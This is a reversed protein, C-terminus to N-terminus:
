PRMRRWTFAAVVLVLTVALGYWTVAYQLHNDPLDIRTVGGVPWGGPNPTDDADIFFPLVAAPDLGASSVMASWDKWYFINAALDNDPVIFSPKADLRQRALGVVTVTGGVQGQLRSDPAKRDFPVFGRNVLVQRGDDMVLPTFVFYGSAARYTAFFHRERAHDFRGTVTVPAYRIDGGGAIGAEIQGIPVAPAALRADITALLDQKWALRQVQWNGLLILAVLVPTAFVVMAWPFRARAADTATM